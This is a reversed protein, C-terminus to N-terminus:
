LDANQKTEKPQEIDELIKDYINRVFRETPLSEKIRHNMGYLAAAPSDRRAEHYSNAVREIMNIIHKATEATTITIVQNLFEATINTAPTNTQNSDTM